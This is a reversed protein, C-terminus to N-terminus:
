KQPAKEFGRRHGIRKKIKPLEAYQEKSAEQYRWYWVHLKDGCPTDVPETSMPDVHSRSLPENSESHVGFVNLFFAADRFSVSICGKEDVKYPVEHIFKKKYTGNRKMMSLKSSPIPKGLRKDLPRRIKRYIIDGPSPENGWEDRLIQINWRFQQEPFERQEEWNQELAQLVPISGNEAEVLLDSLFPPDDPSCKISLFDDIYVNLDDFNSNRRRVESMDIKPM